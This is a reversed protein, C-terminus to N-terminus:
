GKVRNLADTLRGRRVVIDMRLNRDTTFPEESEIQRPIGLRKLTLSVAHLLPQNVQVGARHLHTRTPHGRPSCRLIPM